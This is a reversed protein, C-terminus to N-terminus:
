YFPILLDMAPAENASACQKGNRGIVCRVRGAHNRFNGALRMKCLVSFEALAARTQFKSMLFKKAWISPRRGLFPAVATHGHNTKREAEACQGLDTALYDSFKELDLSSPFHFIWSFFFWSSVLFIFFCHSPDGLIFYFYM